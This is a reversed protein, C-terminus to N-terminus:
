EEEYKIITYRNPEEGVSETKINKFKSALNHVLRRNYSNMPDLKTEMHTKQVEKLIKKIEREFNEEKKKKYNSADLNVKIDLGIQNRISNRILVQLAEINKGDKGILIPNNNSVLVAKIIGENENVESKIEINFSKDLEKIYEKIYDVIDQKKIAEIIIKKSKFLKAETESQKIYLEEETENLENLCKETAEELTKGEYKSLTLM